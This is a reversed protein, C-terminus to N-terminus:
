TQRNGPVGLALTAEERASRFVPTLRGPVGVWGATFLAKCLTLKEQQTEERGGDEALHLGVM